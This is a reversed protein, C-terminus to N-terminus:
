LEHAFSDHLKLFVMVGLTFIILTFLFIASSQFLSPLEGELLVTRFGDIFHFLPNMYLLFTYQPPILSAPYFIPTVFFGVHVITGWVKEIDRFFVYLSSLLFTLGLLFFFLLSLLLPLALLAPGWSVLSPWDLSFRLSLLILILILFRLLFDLLKALSISVPLMWRPCNSKVILNQYNLFIQMGELTSSSFYDWIFIGILLYSPYAALDYAFLKTFVLILVLILLLPDLLTWLFGFVSSKYARRLQTLVLEALLEKKQIKM